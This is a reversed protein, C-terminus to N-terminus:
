RRCAAASPRGRSASTTLVDLSRRRHPLHQAADRVDRDLTTILGLPDSSGAILGVSLRLRWASCDNPNRSFRRSRGGSSRSPHSVFPRALQAHRARLERTCHHQMRQRLKRINGLWCGPTWRAARVAHYWGGSRDLSFRQLRMLQLCLTSSLFDAYIYRINGM